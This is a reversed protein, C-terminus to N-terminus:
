TCVSNKFEVSEYGVFTGTVGGMWLSMAFAITIGVAVLIVAAVVASVARKRPYDRRQNVSSLERAMNIMTGVLAGRLATVM